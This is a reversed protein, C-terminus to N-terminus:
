ISQLKKWCWRGSQRAEPLFSTILNKKGSNYIFSDTVVLVNSIGRKRLVDPIELVSHLIVPSTYPLIPIAIKLVTQFSRCFVKSIINM